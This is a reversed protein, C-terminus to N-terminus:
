LAEELQSELVKFESISLDYKSSVASFLMECITERRIVIPSYTAISTDPVVGIPLDEVTDDDGKKTLHYLPFQKRIVEFNKFVASDKKARIRIFSGSPLKKIKKQIYSVIEETEMDKVAITVFKMANKNEIFYYSDEVKDSIHALIGGKPIEDGHCLRDFSGGAIIREYTSFQHVHGIHVYHKVVSLYNAEDHKPAKIQPNPLQYKFQGHMIAIDVQSLKNEAMLEKVQEFTVSTDSNWEDPVYLVSIGLDKIIEIELTSVYRLDIKTESINKIVNVLASQGWDHSPTGELVRLRIKNNHCYRVFSDIWYLIDSVETGSLDLLSDFLDGAIFIIDLKDERKSYDDFFTKLNAIINQTKNNNNGLHIDNIVIYRVGQDIM